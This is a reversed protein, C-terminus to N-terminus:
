LSGKLIFVERDIIWETFKYAAEYTAGKDYLCENEKDFVKWWGDEQRIFYSDRNPLKIEVFIKQNTM